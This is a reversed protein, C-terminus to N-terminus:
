PVRLKIVTNVFGQWRDRRHTMDIWDMGRWGVEQRDEKWRHRPKGLPRIGM